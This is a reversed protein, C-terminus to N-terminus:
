TAFVSSFFFCIRSSRWDDLFVTGFFLCLKAEDFSFFSLSFLYFFVNMEHRARRRAITVWHWAM